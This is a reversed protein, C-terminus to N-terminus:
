AHDPVVTSSVQSPRSQSQEEMAPKSCPATSAGNSEQEKGEAKDSATEWGTESSHEEELWSEGSPSCEHDQNGLHSPEAAAASQQLHQVSEPLPQSPADANGTQQGQMLGCCKPGNSRLACARAMLLGPLVCARREAQQLLQCLWTALM